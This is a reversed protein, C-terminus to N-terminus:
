ETGELRSVAGEVIKSALGSITTHSDLLDLTSINSGFAILLWNRLEASILSDIGHDAVTRTTNVEAPNIFLMDAITKVVATTTIALTDEYRSEQMGARISKEFAHRLRGAVARPSSDESAINGMNGRGQGNLNATADEFARMILSVRPDSYWQPLPASSPKGGEDAEAHKMKALVAPDLCTFINAASLPDERAGNWSSEPDQKVFAPELMAIFQRETITQTRNRAFMDVTTPDTALSGVDSVFGFSVTSAPLGLRRRYRAFADQFVNAATYASQTALAFVSELSTTMVFFDLQIGLTAKHLNRTGQVKAAMSERWRQISIKDFSIDQYSVAAHVIGKVPRELSSAEQVVRDVDDFKSVDCAVVQIKIGRSILSDFLTQAEKTTIGKRSLVILDRAGRSCMWSVISRGLGGMGGTIIFRATSDFKARPISPAMRVLADPEFTVVLKGIHTGKSFGLLTQDLRSVSSATFPHIPAIRGARYHHDVAEILDHGLAPDQDLVLSLDFSSFNASKQFLELGMTMSEGVATRGVDILHGLPALSRVSAHLMEGASTSLIVDFGGGPIAAAATLLDNVSRSSFIREAPIKMHDTLFQAKEPTGVSAYVIAGKCQALQIAALGLGGTASQILVKQGKRLRTVHEFAYVATMYVLPMTAAETLDDEPRLRSCFAAPVRTFNGFHGRGMGFIKDGVALDVVESGAETIIGTYESSLNNADFRGSSLGLDKWNLGVASVKVTIWDRPLPEEIETYPCFYLSSLIGPTEFAARVPGQSDIPMMQSRRSIRQEQTDVYAELGNDPVFRSVWMCGDQWLYENDKNATFDDEQLESELTLLSNVLDENAGQLSDADVDISLYRRGPNETRLTRLLGPVFSADPNTGKAINGSTLLLLSGANSIIHKFNNLQSEDADLLLNSKDLYAVVRTDPSVFDSANRLPVVDAAAGQRELAESLQLILRPASVTGHLLQVKANRLANGPVTAPSEPPVMTSVIVTTTAHPEPYDSLVLDTGSFGSSRLAVDWADRRLFPSDTRGDPIGHWYGTLTGLIIGVLDNNQTNEVLVLKGGPKLLRRCNALTNAISCTAHLTQSAMVIDYSAAYGQSHPDHEIDLVSFNFDLYETLSERASALFGASIDTFTYDKYRKIGNGDVLAKMAVRTAGGTGAGLELIRQSPNAHGLSQFINFLQPYASTMFLGKEYLATLLGDHVLLEVSTTEKRFIRHMNEHLRKAIQIEVIEENQGYLKALLELRDHTPMMRLSSIDHEEDTKVRRTVWTAFHALNGTPEAAEPHNILTEYMDALVVSAFRNMAPFFHVRDVNEQPPPFRGQCQTNNMMRIDPQWVLRTFPSKFQISMPEPSPTDGVYSICRLSDIELVLEGSQNELQLTAYAGRLGRLEGHAIVTGHDGGFAESKLHMSNLHIPVFASRANEIQGSYCAILGLQFISDLSAPHLPYESEGGVITGSTTKLNVISVARNGLPDVQIDSLGQFMQGYGLGIDAFKKYWAQSSAVRADVPHELTHTFRIDSTEVKVMGTCHVTWEGSTSAVSSVSFHSWDTSQSTTPLEMSLVIEVGVDDEPIRLATSIDVNRLSHGAIRRKDSYQEFVQSAAVLAM